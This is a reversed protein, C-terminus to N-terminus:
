LSALAEKAQKLYVDAECKEFAEIAHSICERAKETKGKAKHLKGLELYAQGLVSKAGIEEATKIATTLYEEAKKHAFPITKILFGMNKMLFFFDKKEGGGQVIKSYVVGMSCNGSAYRWLSKNELWVRMVNEYLSVGQKLDGQSILVMGKLGKAIAGTSEYGFKESHEIVEELTRQAEKLQGAYLYCAGIGM